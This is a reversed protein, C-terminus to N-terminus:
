FHLRSRVFPAAVAVVLCNENKFGGIRNIDLVSSAFTSLDIETQDSTSTREGWISM